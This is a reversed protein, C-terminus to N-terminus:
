HLFQVMLYLFLLDFEMENHQKSHEVLSFFLPQIMLRRYAHIRSDFNPSASGLQIYAIGTEVDIPGGSWVTAGGNPPNKGKKSGREV